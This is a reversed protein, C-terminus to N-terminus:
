DATSSNGNESFGLEAFVLVLSENTTSKTLTHNRLINCRSVGKKISAM